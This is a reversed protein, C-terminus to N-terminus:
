NLELVPDACSSSMTFAIDHNEHNQITLKTTTNDSCDVTQILDKRSSWALYYIQSFEKYDSRGQVNYVECKTENSNGYNLRLWNKSYLLGVWHPETPWVM